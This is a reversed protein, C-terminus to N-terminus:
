TIPALARVLTLVEGWHHARVYHNYSRNYPQDFLITHGPYAAVNHIADDILIAGKVLSKDKAAIFDEPTRVRPLFKHQMLWEIKADTTGAVCSTVFVVRYGERRLAKISYRAGHIPMVGDYLKPFRLIEYIKKGCEPKVFPHMDWGTIDATTLTDNYLRNYWWLWATLLDAVVADVDCLIVPQNRM